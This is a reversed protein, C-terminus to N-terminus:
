GEKNSRKAQYNCRAIALSLDAYATPESTSHTIGSKMVYYLGRICTVWFQGNEHLIDKEKM